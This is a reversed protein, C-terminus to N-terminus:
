SPTDGPMDPRGVLGAIEMLLRHADQLVQDLVREPSPDPLPPASATAAQARCAATEYVEREPLAPVSGIRSRLRAADAFLRLAARHKGSTEGLVAIRSLTDAIREISGIRTFLTM